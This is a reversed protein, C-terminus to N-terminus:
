EGEVEYRQRGSKYTENKAEGSIHEERDAFDVDQSSDNVAILGKVGCEIQSVPEERSAFGNIEANGIGVKAVSIKRELDSFDTVKNEIDCDEDDSDEQLVETNIQSAIFKEFEASYGNLMKGSKENKSEKVEANDEVEVEDMDIEDAVSKVCMKNGIDEKGIKLKDVVVRLEKHGKFKNTVIYDVGPIGDSDSDYRPKKSSLKTHPKKTNECDTSSTRSNRRSGGSLSGSSQKRKKSSSETKPLLENGESTKDHEMLNDSGNEKVEGIDLVSDKVSGNLTPVNDTNQGNSDVMNSAFNKDSVTKDVSNVLGNGTDKRANMSRVMALKREFHKKFKGYAVNMEENVFEQISSSDTKVDMSQHMDQDKLRVVVEKNEPIVDSLDSSEDSTLKSNVNKESSNDSENCLILSHEYFSNKYGSQSTECNGAQVKDNDKASDESANDSESKQVDKSGFLEDQFMNASGSQNLDLDYLIEREPQELESINGVYHAPSRGAVPTRSKIPTLTGESADNLSVDKLVVEEDDEYEPKLGKKNPRVKVLQKGRGVNGRGFYPFGARYKKRHPIHGINRARFMSTTKKDKNELYTSDKLQKKMVCISKEKVDIEQSSMSNNIVDDIGDTETNDESTPSDASLLDAIMSTTPQVEVTRVAPPIGEVIAGCKLKNNIDEILDGSLNRLQIVERGIKLLSYKRADKPHMRVFNLQNTDSLPSIQKLRFKLKKYFPSPVKFKFTYAPSMKQPSASHQRYRILEMISGSETSGEAVKNLASDQNKLRAGQFSLRNAPKSKSHKLEDKIKDPCNTLNENQEPVFTNQHRPLSFDTDFNAPPESINIAESLNITTFPQQESLGPSPYQLCESSENQSKTSQTQSTMSEPNAPNNELFQTDTLSNNMSNVLGESCFSNSSFQNGPMDDITNNIQHDSQGAGNILNTDSTFEALLDSGDGELLESFSQQSSYYPMNMAMNNSSNGTPQHFDQKSHSILFNNSNMYQTQYQPPPVQYSNQSQFYAPMPVPPDSKKRPRGRKKKQVPGFTEVPTSMSKKLSPRGRRRTLGGRMQVPMANSQSYQPWEIMNFNRVNNQPIDSLLRRHNPQQFSPVVTKHRAADVSNGEKVNTSSKDFNVGFESSENRVSGVFNELSSLSATSDKIKASAGNNHYIDTAVLGQTQSLPRVPVDDSFLSTLSDVTNNNDASGTDSILSDAFLDIQSDNLNDNSKMLASGEKKPIEKGSSLLNFLLKSNEHSRVTGPSFKDIQSHNLPKESNLSSLSSVSSRGPSAIDLGVKEVGDNVPELLLKHLPSIHSESMVSSPSPSLLSKLSADDTASGPTAPPTIQEYMLKRQYHKTVPVVCPESTAVSTCSVTGHLNPMAKSPMYDSTSRPLKQNSLLDLEQGLGQGSMYLESNLSCKKSLTSDSKQLRQILINSMVTQSNTGCQSIGVDNSVCYSSSPHSQMSNNVSTSPLQLFNHESFLPERNTRDLPLNERSNKVHSSPIANNLQAANLPMSTFNHQANKSNPNQYPESFGGDQSPMMNARMLDHSQSGSIEDALSLLDAHHASMHKAQSHLTSLDAHQPNTRTGSAEMRQPASNHRNFFGTNQFTPNTRQNSGSQEHGPLPYVVNNSSNTTDSLRQNVCAHSHRASIDYLHNSQSVKPHALQVTQANNRQSLSEASQDVTPNLMSSAHYQGQYRQYSGPSIQGTNPNFHKNGDSSSLGFPSKHNEAARPISVSPNFRTGASQPNFQNGVPPQSFRAGPPTPSCQNGVSTPSFQNGVPSYQNGASLPSLQNGAAAPSLQNGASPSYQSALNYRNHGNGAPQGYQSGPSISHQMSHYNRVSQHGAPMANSPQVQSYNQEMNGIWGQNRGRGWSRADPFQSMNSGPNYGSTPSPDDAFPNTALINGQSDYQNQAGRNNGHVIGAPGRMGLRKLLARRADGRVSGVSICSLYVKCIM